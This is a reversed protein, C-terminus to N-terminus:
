AVRRTRGARELAVAWASGARVEAYSRPPRCETGSIGRLEELPVARSFARAADLRVAWGMELGAFYARIEAATVCSAAGCREAIAGVALREVGAVRAVGVVAREPATAYLVVGAGVWRESFARRLEVTKEGRVIARAFRPHLSLVLARM